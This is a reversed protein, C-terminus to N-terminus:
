QYRSPGSIAQVLKPAHNGTTRMRRLSQLFTVRRRQSGAPQLVRRGGCAAATLPADPPPSAPQPHRLVPSFLFSAGPALSVFLALGPVRALRTFFVRLCKAGSSGGRHCCSSVNPVFRVSFRSPLRETSVAVQPSPAPCIFISM